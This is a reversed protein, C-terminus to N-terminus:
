NIKTKMGDEFRAKDKTRSYKTVIDSVYISNEKKNNNIAIVVTQSKANYKAILDNNAEDALKIVKFQIDEASSLTLLTVMILLISKKM